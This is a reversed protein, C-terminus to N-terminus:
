LSTKIIEKANNYTNVRNGSFVFVKDNFIKLILTSNERFHDSFLHTIDVLVKPTKIIDFERESDIVDIDSTESSLLLLGSTTSFILGTGKLSEIHLVKNNPKGVYTLSAIHSQDSSTKRDNKISFKCIADSMIVWLNTTKDVILNEVLNDPIEFNAVGEEMYQTKQQGHFRYLGTNTGAWISSDSTVAICNLTLFDNLKESRKNCIRYLGNMETGILINGSPDATISRVPSKIVLNDYDIKEQHKNKGYIIYLANDCGIWLTDKKFYTANINDTFSFSTDVKQYNSIYVSKNGIIALNNDMPVIDKIAVSDFLCITNDPNIRGLVSASIVTIFFTFLPIKKHM